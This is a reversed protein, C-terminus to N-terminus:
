IYNNLCSAHWTLYGIVGPFGVLYGGFAICIQMAITENAYDGVFPAYEWPGHFFGDSLQSYDSTRRGENM